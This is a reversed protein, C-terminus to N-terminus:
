CHLSSVSRVHLSTPSSSAHDASQMWAVDNESSRLPGAVGASAFTGFVGPVVCWSTAGPDLRFLQQKTDASNELAAFLIGRPTLLLSNSQNPDEDSLTSRPITPLEINAWTLGGDTSRLLPYPSSPDLLIADRSSTAVLQQSFCTNVSTVWSTSSWVENNPNISTTPSGLLFSQDAGGMACNVWPYPGFNVCPGVAACGLTSPSWTLGGNATSETRITVNSAIGDDDSYPVAFIAEVGQADTTFGEFDGPGLGPPAPVLHWTAGADTTYLGVLNEPPANGNIAEFFGAYITSARRPDLLVSSCQPDPQAPGPNRFDTGRLALRVGSTPVIENTAGGTVQISTPQCWAIL